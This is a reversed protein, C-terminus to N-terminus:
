LASKIIDRVMEPLEAQQHRDMSAVDIMDHFTVDFSLHKTVLGTEEFCHYTGNITVPVIPVKAKTALKFSGHHFEGLEYDPGKARTGEPFIVMSFGQKLYEAGESITKLSSRVDGRDIYLGRVRGIWDAFHPVKKIESKAIYGCQFPVCYMFPLVDAFGQHNSIFVVPGDEPLKEAGTVNITWDFKDLIRKAWECTVDKILTKETEINGEKRATDIKGAFRDAWLVDGALFLAGPINRIIKM